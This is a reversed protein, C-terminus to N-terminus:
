QQGSGGDSSFQSMDISGLNSFLDNPDFGASFLLIIGVWLACALATLIAFMIAWGKMYSLRHRSCLLCWLGCMGFFFAMLCGCVYDSRKEEEINNREYIQVIVPQPQQQQQQQQQQHQQETLTLREQLEKQAKEISLYIEKNEQAL